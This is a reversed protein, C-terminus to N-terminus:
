YEFRVKNSGKHIHEIWQTELFNEADHNRFGKELVPKITVWHVVGDTQREDQDFYRILKLVMKSISSSLSRESYGTYNPTIKWNRKQSLITRITFCVPRETHKVPDTELRSSSSSNM